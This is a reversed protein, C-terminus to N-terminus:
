VGKPWPMLPCATIDWCQVPGDDIAYAFLMIEAHEAYAYTGNSIPVECYTELDAWLTKM